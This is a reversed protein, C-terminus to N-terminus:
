HLQLRRERKPFWNQQTHWTRFVFDKEKPATIHECLTLRTGLNFGFYVCETHPEPCSVCSWHDRPLCFVAMPYWLHHHHHHHHHHYHNQQKKHHHHYHHYCIYEDIVNCSIFDIFLHKYLTGSSTISCRYTALLTGIIQGKVLSWNNRGFRVYIISVILGIKEM